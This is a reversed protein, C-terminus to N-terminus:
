ANKNRINQLRKKLLIKKIIADIRDTSEEINKTSKNIEDLLTQMNQKKM